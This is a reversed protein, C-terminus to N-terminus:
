KWWNKDIHIWIYLLLGYIVFFFIELLYDGVKNSLSFLHKIEVSLIISLVAAVLVLLLFIFGSPFRKM